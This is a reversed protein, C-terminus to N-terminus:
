HPRRRRARMERRVEHVLDEVSAEEVGASRAKATGYANTEAWWRSEEYESLAAGALDSVARKEKRALETLRQFIEDPLSVTAANAM